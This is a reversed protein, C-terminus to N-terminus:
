KQTHWNARFASILLSSSLSWSMHADHRRKGSTMECASVAPTSLSICSDRKHWKFNSIIKIDCACPWQIGYILLFFFSNQLLVIKIYYLELSISIKCFFLINYVLTTFLIIISRAFLNYDRPFRPIIIRSPLLARWLRPIYVIKKVVLM